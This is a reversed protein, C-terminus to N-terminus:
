QAGSQAEVAALLAATQIFSAADYDCSAGSRIADIIAGDQARLDSWDGGAAVLRDDRTRLETERLVYYEDNTATRIEGFDENSNYTLALSYLLASNSRMTVAVDMTMGFRPHPPGAVAHVESIEPQGTVWHMSDLLHWGHHWVINDVWSRTGGRWHQNHRRPTASLGVLQVPSCAGSLLQRLKAVGSYSRWTACVFLRRQQRQALALLGTVEAASLALPVEVVVHKAAELARAAQAAHLHNPSAILVVDIAPDALAEDLTTGARSFGWRTAFADAEAQDAGVVWANTCGGLAAIARAHEHAIGGPGVVCLGLPAAAAAATDASM